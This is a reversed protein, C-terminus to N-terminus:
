RRQVVYGPGMASRWCRVIAGDQQWLEARAGRKELQGRIHEANRRINETDGAVNPLRLLEAFDRLIAAEHAQRYATVPSPEAGLEIPLLGVLLGLVVRSNM